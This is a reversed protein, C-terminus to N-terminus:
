IPSVNELRQFSKKKAEFFEENNLTGIAVSYTILFLPNNENAWYSYLNKGKFIYDNFYKSYYILNFEDIVDYFGYFHNYKLLNLFNVGSLDDTDNEPFQKVFQKTEDLDISWMNFLTLSDLKKTWELIQDKNEEIFDADVLEILGKSQFLIDMIKHELIEINVISSFSLYVRLLQYLEEKNAFEINCPLDLNSLYVLLKEEKLSSNSYDILYSINKDKFYVKLDEISIPATTKIVNM